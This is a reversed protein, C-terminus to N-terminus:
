KSGQHTETEYEVEPPLYAGKDQRLELHTHTSRADIMITTVPQQLGSRQTRRLMQQYVARRKEQKEAKSDIVASIIMGLTMASLFAVVSLAPGILPVPWLVLSIVVSVFFCGLKAM